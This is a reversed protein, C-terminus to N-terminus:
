SPSPMVFGAAGEVKISAVVQEVQARLAAQGPGRISAQITYLTHDDPGSGPGFLQWSLRPGDPFPLPPSNEAFRAPLGAVTTKAQSSRPDVPTASGTGVSWGVTGPPQVFDKCCDAPLDFTTLWVISGLAYRPRWAAPYDLSFTGSM